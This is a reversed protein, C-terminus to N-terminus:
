NTIVEVLVVVVHDEKSTTLVVFLGDNSFVEWSLTLSNTLEDLIVFYNKGDTTTELKKTLIVDLSITDANITDTNHAVVGEILFIITINTVDLDMVFLEIFSVIAKLIVLPTGEERIIFFWKSFHDVTITIVLFITSFPDVIFINITAVEM